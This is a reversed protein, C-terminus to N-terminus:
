LLDLLIKGGKQKGPANVPYFIHTGFFLKRKWYNTDPAGSDQNKGLGTGGRKALFMFNILVHM